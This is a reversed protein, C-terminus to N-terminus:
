VMPEIWKSYNTYIIENIVKLHVSAIIRQDDDDSPMMIFIQKTKQVCLAAGKDDQTQM